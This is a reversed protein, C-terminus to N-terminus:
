PAASEGASVARQRTDEGDMREDLRRGARIAPREVVVWSLAGLAVAGALSALVWGLTGATGAPFLADLRTIVAYHYLYIGYSVVGILALPRWGLVKTAGSGPRHLVAPWLLAAAGIGDVLDRTATSMEVTAAAAYAIPVIVWALTPYRRLWDAIGPLRAGREVKVTIAAIAMGLAFQGVFRPLWFLQPDGFTRNGPPLSSTWLFAAATAATLLLIEVLLRGRSRWALLGLLAAVLPLVIYFTLEVDLTWAQGIGGARTEDSYVQAFGYYAPPHERVSAAGNGFLAVATLAIWYAPIIRLARRAAYSSMSIREGRLRTEVFPRYLVYGSILFFITVGWGLNLLYPALTASEPLRTVSLHFVLVSLAAIARLADILQNRDGRAMEIPLAPGACGPCGVALVRAAPAVLRFLM